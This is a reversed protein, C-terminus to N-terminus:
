DEREDKRRPIRKPKEPEPKPERGTDAPAVGKAAIVSATREPTFHENSM